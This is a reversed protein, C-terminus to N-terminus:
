RKTRNRLDNINDKLHCNMEELHEIRMRQTQIENQLKLENITEKYKQEQPLVTNKVVYDIMNICYDLDNVENLLVLERKTKEKCKIGLEEKTLSTLINKSLFNDKINNEVLDNALTEWIKIVNFEKYMKRHQKLDRQVFDNTKGFKLYHKGGYCGIYALYIALVNKYDSIM